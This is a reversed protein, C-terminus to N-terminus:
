NSQLFLTLCSMFTKVWRRAKETAGLKRKGARLLCKVLVVRFSDKELSLLLCIIVDVSNQSIM